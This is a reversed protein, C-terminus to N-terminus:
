LLRGGGGGNKKVLVSSAAVGARRWTLDGALQGRQEEEDLKPMAERHM